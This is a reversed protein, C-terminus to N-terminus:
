PTANVRSRASWTVAAPSTSDLDVIGRERIGETTGELVPQPQHGVGAHTTVVGCTAAHRTGTSMGETLSALPSVTVAVIEAAAGPEADRCGGATTFRTPDAVGTAARM